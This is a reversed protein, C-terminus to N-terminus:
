ATQNTQQGGSSVKSGQSGVSYGAFIRIKAPRVHLRTPFATGQSMNDQFIHMVRQYGTAEQFSIMIIIIM